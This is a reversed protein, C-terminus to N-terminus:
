LDTSVATCQALNSLHNLKTNQLAAMEEKLDCYRCGAVTCFSEKGTLLTPFTSCLLIACIPSPQTFFLFRGGIAFSRKVKYKKLETPCWHWHTKYGATVNCQCPAGEWSGLGGEQTRECFVRGSSEEEDSHTCIYDPGPGHLWVRGRGLGGGETRDCFM